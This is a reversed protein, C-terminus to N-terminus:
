GLYKQVVTRFRERGVPKPLYANCGAFKGRIRDFPSVKGTLMIVPIGKCQKNRKITKCINYGDVLGPLVVDLFILDYKQGQNLLEFAQEGTEALDAAVGLHELEIEIQKRTTASDDVVLAKHQLAAAMHATDLCQRVIEDLVGLVRSAVVPRRLAYLPPTQPTGAQSLMVTPMPTQSQETTRLVHGQSVAEPNDADVLLIDPTQGASALEYSWARSSSLNFICKLVSLERAPIGIVAIVWKGKDNM